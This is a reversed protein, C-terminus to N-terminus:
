LEWNLVKSFKNQIEFYTKKEILVLDITPYFLSMNELKVASQKDMWGKVEHYVISNDRNIIKFDPTYFHREIESVQFEFTDAEYLWSKIQKNEVLYNLYRAWNSEWM